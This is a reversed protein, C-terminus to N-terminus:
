QLRQRITPGHPVTQTPHSYPVQLSEATYQLPPGEMNSLKAYASLPVPEHKQEVLAIKDELPKARAM